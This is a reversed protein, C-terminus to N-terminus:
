KVVDLEGLVLINGTFKRDYSYKEIGMRFKFTCSFPKLYTQKQIKAILTNNRCRWGFYLIKFKTFTNTSLSKTSLVKWKVFGKMKWEYCIIKDDLFYKEFTKSKQEKYWTLKSLSLQGIPFSTIRNPLYFIKNTTAFISSM